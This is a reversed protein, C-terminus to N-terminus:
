TPLLGRVYQHTFSDVTLAPVVPVVPLLRYPLLVQLHDVAPVGVPSWPLSPSNRTVDNRHIINETNRLQLTSWIHSSPRVM